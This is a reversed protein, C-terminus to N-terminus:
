GRDEEASPSRGRAVARAEKPDIGGYKAKWRHYTQDSIGFRHCVEVITTGAAREQKAERRMRVIRDSIFKSKRM